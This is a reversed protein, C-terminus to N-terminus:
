LSIPPACPLRSEDWGPAPVGSSFGLNDFHRRTDIQVHAAHFTYTHDVSSHYLADGWTVTVPGNPAGVAPLDACAYPRRDLFLYVRKTSAYVDFIARQDAAASEGFEANPALKAMPGTGLKHLDYVPCQDNVDWTRLNCVELQYDVPWDLDPGGQSRPQVILTHGKDLTYQIPADRDSILIQPYRRQTSYSDVEMTVHLFSSDSMSAKQKATLRYKGNTDAAVDAYNVWWEGMVPGAVAMQLKTKPDQETIMFMQDFTPSEYRVTAFCNGDVSGCPIETYTEPTADPAFTEYFDMKPHAKPAVKLFSRAIANPLPPAAPPTPQMGNPIKLGDWIWAPGHQGNIFVEKTASAARVDDITMYPEHILPQDGFLTTITPLAVPSLYGQYPCGADLAEVVLTTNGKIGSWLLSWLPLKDGQKYIRNFREKGVALEDHSWGCANQYFVRMLPQTGEAQESLVNFAPSKSARMGAEAGDAFYYRATFPTGPQDEALYVQKTKDSADAPVYFAIGDDRAFDELLTTRESESATYKKVRSGQWRAFFCTTDANPDSEGLVYVPVRGEGPDTYVYGLTADALTRKFGGVTQNDVQTHVAIGPIAAADDAQAPASERDGSCRYTGNKVTFSKGSVTIDGDAPLEYVRYDLAGDVPDFTIATSDDNLVAFVHTLNPLAPLKSTIDNTQGVITEDPTPFSGKGGTPITSGGSGNGSNGSGGAGDNDSSSSCGLATGVALSGVLCVLSLSLRSM